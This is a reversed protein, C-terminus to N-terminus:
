FLNLLFNFFQLVPTMLFWLIRGGILMLILLGFIGISDYAQRAGEPLMHRLVHSGDLPPVPILNFCALLVNIFMLNYLLLAVPLLTSESVGEAAGGFKFSISEAVAARGEPFAVMIVGLGMVALTAVMFNSIPGAVSTLIDDRVIRKFNRTNVPTPKAWGILPFHTIMALLPMVITGIPDIHKMPNLTVRGLMFATPDGLRFATWAHASEHVSIAFLFVIIQFLIDVHEFTM